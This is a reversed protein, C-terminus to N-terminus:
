LGKRLANYVVQVLEARTMEHGADFIGGHFILGNVGASEAVGIFWDGVKVDPYQSTVITNNAAIPIDFADLVVKLSEARNVFKAPDFINGPYGNILGKEKMGCVYTSFWHEKFTKVDNFCNEPVKITTLDLDTAEAIIKAFEGRNVRDNPRFNGKDDGKVVGSYYLALVAEKNPHDEALDLFPNEKSQPIVAVEQSIQDNLVNAEMVDLYRNTASFSSVFAYASFGVVLALLGGMHYHHPEINRKHAVIRQTVVKEVEVKEPAVKTTSPQYTVRKKATSIKKKVPM